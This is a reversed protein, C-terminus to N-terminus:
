NSKNQYEKNVEYVFALLEAVVQYLSSPIAQGVDVQSLLQVLDPDKKIPINNERALAIIKEGILGKGKATVKPAPNTEANYKLVVASKLKPHSKKTM